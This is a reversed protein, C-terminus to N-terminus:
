LQLSSPLSGSCRVMTIFLDDIPESSKAADGSGIGGGNSNEAVQGTELAIGDPYRRKMTAM